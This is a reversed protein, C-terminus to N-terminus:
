GGPNPALRWLREAARGDGVRYAHARALQVNEDDTQSRYLRMAALKDALVDTIDVEALCELRDARLRAELAALPELAAYPLDEFFALEVRRDMALGADRVLVHDVHGGIAAPAIVLDPAIRVCWDHIAATVAEARPDSRCPQLETVDDFGSLSADPFAFYSLQLGARACYARDEDRRLASIQDPALERLSRQVAWRSRGFVTLVHIESGATRAALLGGCAYAIDDPHPSLCAVRRGRFVADADAAVAM